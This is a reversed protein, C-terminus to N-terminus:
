LIVRALASMSYLVAEIGWGCLLAGIFSRPALDTRRSLASRKIVLTDCWKDGLRQQLPPKMSDYAPLGFLFSDIYFALSRGAAARFAIPGGDSRVVVLGLLRKGVTAACMREMVAHYAAFGLGAALYDYWHSVTLERAWSEVSTQTIAGYVGLGIAFVFMAVFWNVYHVVTDIVQGGARVWFGVGVFGEPAPASSNEASSSTLETSM